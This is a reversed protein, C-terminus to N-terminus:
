AHSIESATARYQAIEAGFSQCEALLWQRFPELKAATARADPFIL